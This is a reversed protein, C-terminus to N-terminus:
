KEVIEEQSLDDIINERLDSTVTYRNRLVGLLVYLISIILFVVSYLIISIAFGKKNM